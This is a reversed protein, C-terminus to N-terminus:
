WIGSIRGGYAKMCNTDHKPDRCPTESIKSQLTRRLVCRKPHRQRAILKPLLPPVSFVPWRDLADVHHNLHIDAVYRPPATEASNLGPLVCLRRCGQANRTWPYGLKEERNLSDLKIEAYFRKRRYESRLLARPISSLILSRM